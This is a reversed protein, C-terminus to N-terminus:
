MAAVPQVPSSWGIQPLRDRIEALCQLLIWSIGLCVQSQSFSVRCKSSIILRGRPFNQGFRACGRLLGQTPVLGRTFRVGNESPDGEKISPIRREGLLLEPPGEFETWIIGGGM